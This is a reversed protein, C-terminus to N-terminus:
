KCNKALTYGAAQAAAESAFTIKNEPKISKGSGCWLYHYKTGSKSAIVEGTKPTTALAAAASTKAGNVTAAAGPLAVGATPATNSLAPLEIRVPERTSEVISLRGLGFALTSTVLILSMMYLGQFHPALAERGSKIKEWLYNISM